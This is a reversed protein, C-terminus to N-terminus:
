PQYLLNYNEGVFRNVLERPINKPNLPAILGGYKEPIFVASFVSDMLEILQERSVSMGLLYEQARAHHIGHDGQLIIVAEPNRDLIADIELIAEAIAADFAIPYLDHVRSFDRETLAPDQRWLHNVHTQAMRILTFTPYDYINERPEILKAIYDTKGNMDDVRFRLPTTMELLHPLDSALFSRWIKTFFGIWGLNEITTLTFLQGDPWIAQINFRRTDIYYGRLEFASFVELNAILDNFSLGIASLTRDFARRRENQLFHRYSEMRESFFTDYFTPMFLPVFAPETIGAAFNANEYILFGRNHFEYRHRNLCNGWFDEATELSMLGDMWFFYIDPTPLSNDIAFSIKIQPEGYRENIDSGVVGSGRALLIQHNVAPSFNVIFLAILGFSIWNIMTIANTLKLGLKRFVAILSLVVLVVIASLITNDIAGYFWFFVWLVVIVVLSGENSKVIQKFAFILLFSILALICFLLIVHQFIILNGMRNTNYLQFLFIGPTIIAAIYHLLASKTKVRNLLNLLRPVCFFYTTMVFYHLKGMYGKKRRFVCRPKKRLFLVGQRKKRKVMNIGFQWSM